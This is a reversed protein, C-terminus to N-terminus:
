RVNYKEDNMRMEFVRNRIKKADLDLEECIWLYSKMETSDDFFWFCAHKHYYMEKSEPHLVDRVARVLVEAWLNKEPTETDIEVGLIEFKTKKEM